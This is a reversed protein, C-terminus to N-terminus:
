IEPAQTLEKHRNKNLLYLHVGFKVRNPRPKKPTGPGSPPDEFAGRWLDSLISAISM